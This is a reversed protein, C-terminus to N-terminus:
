LKQLTGGFAAMAKKVVPELEEEQEKAPAPAPPKQVLGAEEVCNLRVECRALRLLVAEFAKKYDDANMRKCNFKNKFAVTLIGNVYSVARGGAACAVMSRKKETKLIELVQQWLDGAAADAEWQDLQEPTIGFEKKIEDASMAM